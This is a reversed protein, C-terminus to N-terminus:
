IERSATQPFKQNFKIRYQPKQLNKQTTKLNDYEQKVGESYLKCNVALVKFEQYSSWQVFEFWFQKGFSKSLKM